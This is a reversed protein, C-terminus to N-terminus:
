KIYQKVVRENIGSYQSFEYITILQYSQKGLFKKIRNVFDAAARYSSGMIRQVDHPYVVVRCDPDVVITSYDIPPINKKGKM